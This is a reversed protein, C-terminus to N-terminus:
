HLNKRSPRPHTEFAREPKKEQSARDKWDRDFFENVLATAQAVEANDFQRSLVASVDEIM